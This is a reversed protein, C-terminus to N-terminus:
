ALCVADINIDPYVIRLYALVSVNVRDFLGDSDKKGHKFIKIVKEDVTVQNYDSTSSSM